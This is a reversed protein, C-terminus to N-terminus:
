MGGGPVPAVGQSRKNMDNMFRVAESPFFFGRFSFFRGGPVDVRVDQLPAWWSSQCLSWLRAQWLDLSLHHVHRIGSIMHITVQQPDDKQGRLVVLLARAGPIYAFGILTLLLVSSLLDFAGSLAQPPIPFNPIASALGFLTAALISSALYTGILGYCSYWKQRYRYLILESPWNSKKAYIARMRAYAFYLGGGLLMIVLLVAAKAQYGLLETPLLGALHGLVVPIAQVVRLLPAIFVNYLIYVAAFAIAVFDDLMNVQISDSFGNILIQLAPLLTAGAAMAIWIPRPLWGFARTYWRSGHAARARPNPMQMEAVLAVLDAAHTAVIEELPVRPYASRIAVAISEDATVAFLRTSAALIREPSGSRMALDRAQRLCSVAEEPRRQALAQIARANLASVEADLTDYQQSSKEAGKYRSKRANQMDRDPLEPAVSEDM